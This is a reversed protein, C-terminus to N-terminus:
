HVNAHPVRRGRTRAFSDATTRPRAEWLRLFEFAKESSHLYSFRAVQRGLELLKKELELDTRYGVVITIPLGRHVINLFIEVANLFTDANSFDLLITGDNVPEVARM